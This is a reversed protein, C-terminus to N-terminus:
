PSVRYLLPEPNALKQSVPRFTNVPVSMNGLIRTYALWYRNFLMTACSSGITSRGLKKWSRALKKSSGLIMLSIAALEIGDVVRMRDGLTNYIAISERVFQEGQTDGQVLMNIGLWSLSAATGRNDGIKRHIGLSKTINAEAQEYESLDWLVSALTRLTGASLWENGIGASIRTSQELVYKAEANLGSQALTNGLQNYAFARTELFEASDHDDEEM